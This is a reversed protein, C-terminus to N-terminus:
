VLSKLVAAGVQLKVGSSEAWAVRSDEPAKDRTIKGTLWGGQLLPGCFSVCGSFLLAPSLLARQRARWCQVKLPSWPMLALGENACVQKLEWETWRCLLNYQAKLCLM